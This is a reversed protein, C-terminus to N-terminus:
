SCKKGIIVTKKSNKNRKQFYFKQFFRSNKVFYQTKSFIKFKKVFYQNKSFMKFKQGFISNKSVNQIKSLVNFEHFCKSNKVFYQNKSFM